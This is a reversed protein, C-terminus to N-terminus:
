RCCNSTFDEVSLTDEKTTVMQQYTQSQLATSNRFSDESLHVECPSWRSVDKSLVATEWARPTWSQWRGLCVSPAKAGTFGTRETLFYIPNMVSVGLVRVIAAGM